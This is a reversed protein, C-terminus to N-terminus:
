RVDGQITSLIRLAEQSHTKPDLRRFSALIRGDPGIVYTVRKAVGLLGLANYARAIRKESDAVLTFNLGYKKRFAQHSEKGQTSVGLVVASRSAFAEIDDRFACAERTCGPTDDEPYFYLVVPRGAFDSLRVPNGDHDTSDFDPAQTGVALLEAM